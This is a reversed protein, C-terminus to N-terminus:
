WSATEERKPVSAESSAAAAEADDVETPRKPSSAVRSSAMEVGERFGPSARATAWAEADDADEDLEEEEVFFDFFFLFFFDAFSFSFTSESMFSPKPTSPSLLTGTAIAVAFSEGRATLLSDTSSPSRKAASFGASPSRKAVDDALTKECECFRMRGREGWVGGDSLLTGTVGVSRNEEGSATTGAPALVGVLFDVERGLGANSARDSTWPRESLFVFEDLSLVLEFCNMADDSFVDFRGISKLFFAM